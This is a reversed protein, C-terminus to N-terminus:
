TRSGPGSRGLRNAIKGRICEFAAEGDLAPGSSWGEDWLRGIEVNTDTEDTAVPLPESDVTRTESM